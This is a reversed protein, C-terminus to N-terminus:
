WTPLIRMRRLFRTYRNSKDAQSRVDNEEDLDETGGRWLGEM